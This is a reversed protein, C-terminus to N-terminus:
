TLVRYQAARASCTPCLLWGTPSGAVLDRKWGEIAQERSIGFAAARRVAGEDMEFGRGVLERFEEAAIATGEGFSTTANCVDCLASEAGTGAALAAAIAPMADEVIGAQWAAVQGRKVEPPPVLDLKKKDSAYLRAALATLRANAEQAAIARAIIADRRRASIGAVAQAGRLCMQFPFEQPFQLLQWNGDVKRKRGKKVWEKRVWAAFDGVLVEPEAALITTCRELLAVRLGDDLMLADEPLIAKLSASATAKAEDPHEDGWAVFAELLLGDLDKYSYLTLIRVFEALWAGEPLRVPTPSGYLPTRDLYDRVVEDPKKGATVLGRLGSPRPPPSVVWLPGPLASGGRNTAQRLFDARRQATGLALFGGVADGQMDGPSIAASAGAPDYTLWLQRALRRLSEEGSRDAAALAEAGHGRRVVTALYLSSCSPDGFTADRLTRFAADVRGPTVSYAAFQSRVFGVAYAPARSILHDINADTLVGLAVGHLVLQGFWGFRPLWAADFRPWDPRFLEEYLAVRDALSAGPQALLRLYESLAADRTPQGTMAQRVQEGITFLLRQPLTVVQGDTRLLGRALAQTALAGLRGVLLDWEEPRLPASRNWEALLPQRADGPVDHMSALARGRDVGGWAGALAVRVPVKGMPLRHRKLADEVALLRRRAEASDSEAARVAADIETLAEAVWGKPAEVKAPRPPEFIARLAAVDAAYEAPLSKAVRGLQAWHARAHEISHPLTRQALRLLLLARPADQLDKGALAAEVLALITTDVPQRAAKLAAMLDDRRPEEAAPEDATPPGAAVRPGAGTAVGVAEAITRPGPIAESPAVLTPTFLENLVFDGPVAGAAKPGHRAARAACAPCLLWGTTSHAVLDGKWQRIAFDRSAGHLAAQRVVAEDPEFGRAVLARFEDATYGTGLDWSTPRNCVDCAANM